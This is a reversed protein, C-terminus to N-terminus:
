NAERASTWSRAPSARRRGGHGPEHPAHPREPSGQRGIFNRNSSSACVQRDTLKDPNMALCMSCGAERWQFGAARFVEACGRRRPRARWAARAPCPSRRSGRRVGQKGKGGAGGGAPRQDPRQHLVRHLGRGGAPGEAPPEGRLGHARVGQQLVERDEPQADSVRPLRQTVGVAQGPNIGWAVMPEIRRATWGSCTTTARTRTRPSARGSRSRRTSRRGRRRSSGARAPLRLHDRRPQRLGGPRGGRHEHQLADPAGGHSAGRHRRRAYEYAFGIGGNVGLDAIIRIILDKAYVGAALTGRSRSGASRRAPDAVPDAHGPHRPDPLHRRRLRPKGPRRAHLHALGRLRHDHGAAHPGARPRHHARDGPARRGPRLVPHRARATNREIAQMMAEALADAFPRRQNDTPVIHDVTAFTRGPFM